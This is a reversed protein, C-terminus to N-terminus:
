KGPQVEAKLARQTEPDYLCSYRHPVWLGVGNMFEVKNGHWLVLGGPQDAWRLSSLRRGAFVGDTWRHKYAAMAEIMVRCSVDADMYQESEIESLTLATLKRGFGSGDAAQQQTGPKDAVPQEDVGVLPLDDACPMDQYVTGQDTECVVVGPPPDAHCCVGALLM